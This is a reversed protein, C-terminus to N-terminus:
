PQIPLYILFGPSLHSPHVYSIHAACASWNM